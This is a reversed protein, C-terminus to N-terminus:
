KICELATQLNNLNIQMISMYTSGKQMEEQPIGELPDLVLTKTGTELALTQSLKPSVLSEFFIYKINNKTVFDALEALKQASPEEDPSVGTIAVQNLGYEHALYGFAAHSTIFDKKQCNALSKKYQMNLEDLQENLIQANTEYYKSNQQDAKKFGELIKNVEQKALRPSLWIHPDEKTKGEELIQQTLLGEGAIVVVTNKDSLEDKIKDGWPEVGGNLILLQSNQIRVIEQATPEYDHPEASAPTVNFVDAKDGGVKSAFFYLPYFSTVVQIKNSKNGNPSPSKLLGAKFLFSVVTILILGLIFFLITKNMDNATQV